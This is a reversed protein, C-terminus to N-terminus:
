LWSPRRERPGTWTWDRLVEILDGIENGEMELCSYGFGAEVLADVHPEIVSWAPDVVIGPSGGFDRIMAAFVAHRGGLEVEFPSVVEIGLAAAQLLWSEAADDM